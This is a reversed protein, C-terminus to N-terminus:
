NSSADRVCPKLGLVTTEGRARPALRTDALKEILRDVGDDCVHGLRGMSVVSAESGEAVLLDDWLWNTGRRTGGEVFPASERAQRLVLKSLCTNGYYDAFTITFFAALSGPALADSRFRDELIMEYGRDRFVASIREAFGRTEREADYREGTLRSLADDFLTQYGELPRAPAETFFRVECTPHLLIDM